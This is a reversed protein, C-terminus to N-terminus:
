LVMKMLMDESMYHQQSIRKVEKFYKLHFVVMKKIPGGYIPTTRGDINGDVWFNRVNAM